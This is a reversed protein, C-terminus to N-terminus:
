QAERASHGAIFALTNEVGATTLFYTVGQLHVPNQETRKYGASKLREGLSQTNFDMPLFTVNSPIPHIVKELRKLKDEQTAAQDIEFV